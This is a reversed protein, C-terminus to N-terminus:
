AKFHNLIEEETVTDTYSFYLVPQAKMEVFEEVLFVDNLGHFWIIKDNFGQVILLTDPYQKLYGIM